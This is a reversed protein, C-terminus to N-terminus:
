ALQARAEDAFAILSKGLEGSNFSSSGRLSDVVEVIRRKVGQEDLGAFLAAETNGHHFPRLGFTRVFHVATRKAHELNQIAM